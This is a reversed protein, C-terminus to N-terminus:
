HAFGEIGAARQKEQAIADTLAQMQQAQQQNAAESHNLHNIINNYEEQLNFFEGKISDNEQM